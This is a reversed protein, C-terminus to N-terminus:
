WKGRSFVDGRLKGGSSELMMTSRDNKFANLYLHWYLERTPFATRNWWTVKGEGIIKKEVPDLRVRLDYDVVPVYNASGDKTLEFAFDIPLQARSVASLWAIAVISLM